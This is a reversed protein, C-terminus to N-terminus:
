EFFEMPIGTATNGAYAPTIRLLLKFLMKLALTGRTHPPSGLVYVEEAFSM